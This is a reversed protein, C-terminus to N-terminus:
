PQSEKELEDMAQQFYRVFPERNMRDRQSDLQRAREMVAQKREPTATQKFHGIRAHFRETEAREKTTKEGIVRYHEKIAAVHAIMEATPNMYDADTLRLQYPVGPCSHVGTLPELLRWQELTPGEAYATNGIGTMDGIIEERDTYNERTSTDGFVSYATQPPKDTRIHIRHGRMVPYVVTLFGREVLTMFCDYAEGQVSDEMDPDYGPFHTDVWADVKDGDVRDGPLMWRVADWLRTRIKDRVTNGLGIYPKDGRWRSDYPDRYDLLNDPILAETPNARARQGSGPSKLAVASGGCAALGM